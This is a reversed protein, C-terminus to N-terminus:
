NIPWLLICTGISKIEEWEDEYVGAQDATWRTDYIDGSYSNRGTYVCNIDVDALPSYGNGESDKAMIIQTSDPVDKLAEILEAKTM